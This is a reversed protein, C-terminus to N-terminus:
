LSTNILLTSISYNILNFALYVEYSQHDSHFNPPIQNQHYESYSIHANSNGHRSLLTKSQKYSNKKSLSGNVEHDHNKSKGQKNHEDTVQDDSFSSSKSSPKLDQFQQDNLLPKYDQYNSFTDKENSHNRVIRTNKKLLLIGIITRM